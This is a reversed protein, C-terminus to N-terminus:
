FEPTSLVLVARNENARIFKNLGQIGSWNVAINLEVSQPSIAVLVIAFTVPPQFSARPGVFLVVIELLM